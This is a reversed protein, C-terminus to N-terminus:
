LHKEPLALGFRRQFLIGPCSCRRIGTVNKCRCRGREAFDRLATRKDAVWALGRDCKPSRSLNRGTAFLHRGPVPAPMSLFVMQISAKLRM